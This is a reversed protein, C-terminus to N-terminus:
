DNSRIDIIVRTPGRLVEVSYPLEKNLGIVFQSRGEFTGASVIQKVNGGAGAVTGINPDKKGMEFPYVTGDINVELATSGEYSIANGSGQQAPSATYDIHWGPDGDGELEFVVREFGEHQGVRVDKVMLQAPAEPRLTKMKKDADGLPTIGASSVQMTSTVAPEETGCASLALTAVLCAVTKKM